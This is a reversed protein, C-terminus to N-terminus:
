EYKFPKYTGHFVPLNITELQAETCKFTVAHQCFAAAGEKDHFDLIATARGKKGFAPKKWFVVSDSNRYRTIFKAASQISDCAYYGRARIPRACFKELSKTNGKADVLFPVGDQDESTFRPTAQARGADILNDSDNRM